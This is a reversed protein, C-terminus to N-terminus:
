KKAQAFAFTLSKIFGKSTQTAGTVIDVDASQAKIAESKLIPMARENIKVSNDRDDPYQLFSISSINGNTVTTRVEVNGYFVDEVSGAYTGDKYKGVTNTVLNDGPGSTIPSINNPDIVASDNKRFFSLFKDAILGNKWNISVAYIMFALILGLSLGFKNKSYKHSINPSNNIM